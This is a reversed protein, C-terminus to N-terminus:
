DLHYQKSSAKYGQNPDDSFLIERKKKKDKHSKYLNDIQQQKDIESTNKDRIKRVDQEIEAEIQSDSFNMKQYQSKKKKARQM